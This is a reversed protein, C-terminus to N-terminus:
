LIKCLLKHQWVTSRQAWCTIFGKFDDLLDSSFYDQRGSLSQSRLSHRQPSDCGSCIPWTRPHLQVVKVKWAPFNLKLKGVAAGRMHPPARQNAGWVPVHGHGARCLLLQSCIAGLWLEWRASVSCLVVWFLKLKSGGLVLHVLIHKDFQIIDKYKIYKINCLAVTSLCLLFSYETKTFTLLANGSHNQCLQTCTFYLILRGSLKSM